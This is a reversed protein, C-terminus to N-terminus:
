LAEDVMRVFGIEGTQNEARRRRAGRRHKGRWIVGQRSPLTGDRFPIFHSTLCKMLRRPPRADPVYKQFEAFYKRLIAKDYAPSPATANILKKREFNENFNTLLVALVLVSIADLNSDGIVLFFGPSKDSDKFTRNRHDAYLALIQPIAQLRWFNRDYKTKEATVGKLYELAIEQQCGHFVQTDNSHGRADVITTTNQPIKVDGVGIGIGTSGIWHIKNPSHHSSKDKLISAIVSESDNTSLIANRNKWFVDSTLGMAWNEEDDGAGPIYTWGSTNPQLQHSSVSALCVISIKEQNFKLQISERISELSQTLPYLKSVFVPILLQKPVQSCNVLAKFVQVFHPLRESIANKEAESIWSPLLLPEGPGFLANNITACWIPVTRSFSDPFEKGRSSDAIIVAGHQSLTSLLHLNLRSPSLDWKGPHGDTSKFYCTQNFQPSYWLGNRLNAVLPVHLGARHHTNELFKADDEISLLFDKVRRKLKLTPTRTTCLSSILIWAMMAMRVGWGKFGRSSRRLM